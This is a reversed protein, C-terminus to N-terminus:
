KEGWKKYDIYFNVGFDPKVDEMVQKILPIYKDELGNKIEFVVSDHVTLLMRCEVDDDVLDFLNCMVTNVIDAAGGQIVANFGKHAESDPYMFHRYRGSWLQLRRQSRVKRSAMRMVTAFGSYRSLFEDRIEGGQALTVGFVDSLRKAGGGFQITYTRTKIKQRDWQELLAMETFVDRERDNFIAILPLDPQYQAAYAAGLRFELQSYDFEWLSYGDEPIFASKLSGNWPKDSIRPIQQLNPKECSSRGTRTGHLKYNPRLRGDPSLLNIYPKYNSSVAKQWGRYALVLTATEDLTDRNELIHEYYEMVEKDFSPKGTKQSRKHIPMGLKDVFLEYQDKPSGPNLGLIEVIEAMQTEGVAAQQKCLETNIRVGRSEMKIITRVFKQKHDWYEPTVEKVALPRIAEFLRLTLVADHTAYPAMFVAPVLDWRGSLGAVLAKIESDDKAEDAGLYHKVCDNLGKSYPLTENLLHCLLMTDYFKGKYDIGLTRLAVLDHKANHFILWGKFNRLANRLRYAEEDSLNNEPHRFPYYGGLLEGFRFALSIGTGWGRGDRYDQDINTGETDCGVIADEGLAELYACVEDCTLYRGLSELHKTQNM